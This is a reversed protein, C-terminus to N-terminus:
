EFWMGVDSISQRLQAIKEGCEVLEVTESLSVNQLEKITEEYYSLKEYYDYNLTEIIDIKAKNLIAQILSLGKKYQAQEFEDFQIELHHKVQDAVNRKEARLKMEELERKKDELARNKEKISNELRHQRGFDDVENLQCKLDYLEASLRNSDAIIENKKSEYLAKNEMDEVSTITTPKIAEGIAGGLKETWHGISLMDLMTSLTAGEKTEEDANEQVSEILERRGDDVKKITKAIKSMKEKKKDVERSTESAKTAANKIYRFITAADKAKDATSVVKAAETVEKAAGAAAGAPNWILLALDAAEGIIRGTIKGANGGGENEVKIFEPHYVGLQLFQDAVAEKQLECASIKREIELKEDETSNERLM